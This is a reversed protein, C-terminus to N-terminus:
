YRNEDFYCWIREAITAVGFAIFPFIILVASTKMDAGYATGDRWASFAKYACYIGYIMAVSAIGGIIRFVFTIIHFMIALPTFFIPKLIAGTKEKIEREWEYKRDLEAVRKRYLRMSENTAPKGLTEERMIADVLEKGHLGDYKYKKQKKKFM